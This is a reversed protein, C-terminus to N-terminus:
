KFAFPFYASSNLSPFSHVSTVQQTLHLLGCNNCVVFSCPYEQGSVDSKSPAAQPHKFLESM